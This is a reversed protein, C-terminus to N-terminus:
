QYIPWRILKHILWLIFEIFSPKTNQKGDLACSSCELGNCFGNMNKTKKPEADAAFLDYFKIAKVVRTFPRM